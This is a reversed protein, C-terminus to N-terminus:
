ASKKIAKKYKSSIILSFLLGVISLVFGFLFSGEYGGSAEKILAILPAGIIGSVGFVSFTISYNETIYKAGFLDSTVPAVLSAVGGYCLTCLMLALIYVIQVNVTYLVIMSVAMLVNLCILSTMRGLKDSVMGWVPRGLTNSISFASVVMAAAQATVAFKSQMIPSGQTIVMTGCVISALLSVYAFYFLPDKVMQNRPKESVSVATGGAAAKEQLMKRYKETFDSPVTFILRSLVAIGVLFTVGLVTFVSSIDGLAVYLNNAVVAWIVSGFGYGAAMVGSSFGTKEPYLEMSYSILVPYIMSNGIGTLASYLIYFLVMSSVHGGVAIGGGYLICGILICNKITFRSRIKPVIFMTALMMAVTSITYALSLQSLSWGYKESLPLTFVSWAYGVGALIEIIVGALLSIWRKREFEM